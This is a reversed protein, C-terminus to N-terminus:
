KLSNFGYKEFIAAAEQSTLFDAFAKAQEPYKTSKIVAMPYVIPQHSDAPASAVVKINKGAMADSKYVLGADVNGSEVYTLVTRVDKAQVLKPELKDWLNLSVLTEKAYKGAPVTEPTGISIQTIGTGTLEEFKTIKSTDPVILVLDNGLIDKRTTADILGKEAVADMQKQGASLFLDVPAGEEIQKQLTGSSAFNYAITVDPKQTSYTDALENLADQLSAAAAITLNVAGGTQEQAKPTNSCGTVIIFLLALIATLTIKKM